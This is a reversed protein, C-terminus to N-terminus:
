VAGSRSTCTQCECTNPNFHTAMFDSIVARAVALPLSNPHMPSQSALRRTLSNFVQTLHPTNAAKMVHWLQLHALSAMDKPDQPAGWQRDLFHINAVAEKIRQPDQKANM